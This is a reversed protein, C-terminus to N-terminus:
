TRRDDARSSRRSRTCRTKSTARRAPRIRCGCRGTSAARAAADDGLGTDHGRGAPECGHARRRDRSPERDRPVQPHRPRAAMAHRRRLQLPPVRLRAEVVVRRRGDLRHVPSHAVDGAHTRLRLDDSQGLAPRVGSGLARAADRRARQARRSPLFAPDPSPERVRAAAAERRVPGHGYGRALLGHRHHDVAGEGDARGRRGRARGRVVATRRRPASRARVPAEIEDIQDDTYPDVTVADYKKQEQAKERETRVMLRYQGSLLTGATTVSCRRPGSTFRM